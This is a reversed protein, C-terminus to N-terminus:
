HGFTRRAGPAGLLVDALADSFPFHPANYQMWFCEGAPNAELFVHRGDPEVIVDIASYQMGIRDMYAHLSREIAPPLAYERWSHLLTVGRARWDTEAGDTRQSDVAAAWMRGGIVTIRLELAKELKEQFIMPSYRLGDLKDLHEPKVVTTFVVNEEGNDYIPFGALMKTVAGGRCSRVFERAEVPDNTVLTRPTALGVERALRLQSLKHGRTRVLDPPDLVFCPAAAMLARLFSKSELVCGQRIQSEMTMPLGEAFRARRYWIADDPGLEATREGCTFRIAGEAGDQSFHAQAEMPFRDSDFRLVEVGRAELTARLERIMGTLDGSYTMIVVKKKKTESM